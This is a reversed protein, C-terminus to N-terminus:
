RIVRKSNFHCPCFSFPESSKALGPYRAWTVFLPLSKRGIPRMSWFLGAPDATHYSGAVPQQAAVDIEGNNDAMFLAASAWDKELYDRSRARLMVKQGPQLSSLRIAIPEDVLGRLPEVYLQVTTRTTDSDSM